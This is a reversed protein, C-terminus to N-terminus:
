TLQIAFSDGFITCTVVVHVPTGVEERAAAGVM